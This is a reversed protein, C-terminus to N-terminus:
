LHYFGRSLQNLGLDPALLPELKMASSHLLWHFKQQRYSTLPKKTHVHVETLKNFYMHPRGEGRRLPKQQKKTHLLKENRYVANQAKYKYSEICTVM